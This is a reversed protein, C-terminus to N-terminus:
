AESWKKKSEEISEIRKQEANAATEDAVKEKADSQALVEIMEKRDEKAIAQQAKIIQQQDLKPTKGCYSMLFGVIILVALGIAFIKWNDLVFYVARKLFFM